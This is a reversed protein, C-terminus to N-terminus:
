SVWYVIVKDTRTSLTNDRQLTPRLLPIKASVSSPPIDADSDDIYIFDLRM